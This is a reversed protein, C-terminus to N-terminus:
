GLSMIVESTNLPHFVGCFHRTLGHHEEVILSVVGSGQLPVFAPAAIPIVTVVPDKYKRQHSM